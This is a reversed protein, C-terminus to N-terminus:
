PHLGLTREMWRQKFVVQRVLRKQEPLLKRVGFYAHLFAVREKCGILERPASYALQALDKVIWRRRWFRRHQVRQLDILHVRFSGLLGERIFFHCCYFDRHNYGLRHFKNAVRAVERILRHLAEAGAPQSLEDATFRARLFHDLQTYGALEETLVLSELRGDAHLEEGFAILRMSPIGARNLRHINSAEVRGATAPIPGGMRACFRTWRTRIHHKKLYARYTRRTDQLELRWNERDDLARLLRGNTTALLADFTTLGAQELAPLDRADCWLRGPDVSKLSSADFSGALRGARAEWTARRDLLRATADDLLEQFTVASGDLRAERLYGDILAQRDARTTAGAPLTAALRALEQARAHIDIRRRQRCRALGAFACGGGPRDEFVLLQQAALDGHVFGAAHLRAIERGVCELTRMTDHPHRAAPDALYEGLPVAGEPELTVLWKAGGLQANGDARANSVCVIPAATAFGSQQLRLSMSLEDRLEDGALPTLLRRLWRWRGGIQTRMKIRVVRLVDPGAAIELRATERHADLPTEDFQALAAATACDDLGQAEVLWRYEPGIWLDGRTASLPWSRRLPAPSTGPEFLLTDPPM